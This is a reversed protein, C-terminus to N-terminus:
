ERTCQPCKLIFYKFSLLNKSVNAFNRFPVVLKAIDEQRNELLLEVRLLRIEM